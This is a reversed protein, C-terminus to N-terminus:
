HYMITATCISTNEISYTKFGFKEPAIQLATLFSFIGSLFSIAWIVRKNM